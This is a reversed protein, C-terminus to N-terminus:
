EGPQCSQNSLNGSRWLMHGVPDFSELRALCWAGTTAFAAYRLRRLGAKRAQDSTLRRLGITEVRGDLLTAKVSATVPAFVMAVATMATETEAQNSETTTIWLGGREPSLRLRFTCTEGGNGGGLRKSSIGICPQLEASRGAPAAGEERGVSASWPDGSIEGSSLVVSGTPSGGSGLAASASVATAM